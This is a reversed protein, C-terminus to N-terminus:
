KQFRIQLNLKIFYDQGRRYVEGFGHRSSSATEFKTNNALYDQFENWNYIHYCLIVGDEKVVLYGGTADINGTWVRSPTMGLAVDSLFRKVKYLYYPHNKDQNFELPNKLAVWSTLEKTTSIGSSYFAYVMHSLILPLGSDILSLNSEFVYNETSVFRLGSAMGNILDLRDRIKSRTQISNIEEVQPDGFQPNIIKYIFNTTKGANLLTSAGGLRSKVSFGLVPDAGTRQDHIKIHIDSKNSSKAKLTSCKFTKLFTETEPISFTRPTRSKLKKLLFVAQEHFKSIPIRFEERDKKIVVLDQDYQFQFMGHSEERMVKIIPHILSEIENLNVDGAVLKKNALLSLLVYVESWEGKNGTIM